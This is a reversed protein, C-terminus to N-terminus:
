FRPISYYDSTEPPETNVPPRTKIYFSMVSCGCCMVSCIINQQFEPKNMKVAASPEPEGTLATRLISKQRDM